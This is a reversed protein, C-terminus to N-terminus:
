FSNVFAFKESTIILQTKSGTRYSKQYKIGNTDFKNFILNATNIEGEREADDLIIVFDSSLNNPILDLINTRPYLRDFGFPGDIIILDYTKDSVVNDLNAYKDNKSNNYEFPMLNLKHINFNSSAVLKKSYVDIWNQDHEIVDLISNRYKAYQSTVKTTQGLGMELISNPQIEDLVRFLIYLFSYNAAGLNPSFSKDLLWPSNIISDHFINAFRIEELTNTQIKLLNILKDNNNTDVRQNPKNGVGLCRLIKRIKIIIHEIM